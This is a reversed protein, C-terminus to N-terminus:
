PEQWSPRSASSAGAADALGTRAMQKVGHDGIVYGALIQAAIVAIETRIAPTKSHIRRPSVAPRCFGKERGRGAAAFAGNEKEGHRALIERPSRAQLTIKQM